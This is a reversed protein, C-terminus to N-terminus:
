PCASPVPHGAHGTLRAVRRGIRRAEAYRRTLKERLDPYARQLATWMRRSAVDAQPRGDPRMKWCELDVRGGGRIVPDSAGVALFDMRVEGCNCGPTLCYIDNAWLTKTGTKTQFLFNADDPFLDFWSVMRGPEWESWDTRKWAERATDKAARWRKRLKLLLTQDRELREALAAVLAPDTRNADTVEVSGTDMAVVVATGNKVRHGDAARVVLHAGACGASECFWTELSWTREGAANGGATRLRVPGGDDLLLRVREPAEGM